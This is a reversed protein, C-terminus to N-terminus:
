PGPRSARASAQLAVYSRPSQAGGILVRGDDELWAHAEIGGGTAEAVGLRLTTPRGLRRLAVRAALAQTLCPDDPFLRGAVAGVAWVTQAVPVDGSPRGLPVRETWRNLTRFPVLGVAARVGLVLLTAPVLRRRLPPSLRSVARLTSRVPM